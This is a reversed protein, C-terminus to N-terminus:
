PRRVGGLREDLRLAELEVADRRLALPDLERQGAVHRGAARRDVPRDLGVRVVDLDGLHGRADDPEVDGADVEDARVDGHRDALGAARDDLDVRRGPKRICVWGVSPSGCYTALGTM